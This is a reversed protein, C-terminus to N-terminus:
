NAGVSIAAPRAGFAVLALAGLRILRELGALRIIVDSYDEGEARLATLRNVLRVDLWILAGTPTRKRRPPSPASRCGPSLTQRLPM